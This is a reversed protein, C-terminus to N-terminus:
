AVGTCFEPPDCVDGSGNRCMTSSSAVVNAPCAVGPQGNCTEDPDCIDGSGVRCTVIGANGPADDPPCNASTGTCTETLDCPAGGGPRCVSGGARFQCGGTCCSSSAGNSGGLDCQEGSEVIGNGCVAAAVAPTLGLAVSLALGALRRARNPNM